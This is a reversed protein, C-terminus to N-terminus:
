FYRVMLMLSLLTKGNVNFKVIDKLITNKDPSIRFEFMHVNIGGSYIIKNKVDGCYRFCNANSNFNIKNM